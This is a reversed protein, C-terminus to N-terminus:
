EIVVIFVTEHYGYPEKSEDSREESLIVFTRVQRSGDDRTLYANSKKALVDQGIGNWDYGHVVAPRRAQSASM